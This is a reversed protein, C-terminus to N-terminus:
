GKIWWLWSGKFSIGIAIQEHYNWELELELGWSAQKPGPLKYWVWNPTLAHIRLTINGKSAAFNHSVATMVKCCRTVKEIIIQAHLERWHFTMNSWAQPPVPTRIEATCLLLRPSAFRCGFTGRSPLISMTQMDGGRNHEAKSVINQYRYRLTM